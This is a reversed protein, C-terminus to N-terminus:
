SHDLLMLLFLSEIVRSHVSRLRDKCPSSRARRADKGTSAHDFTPCAGTVFQTGLRELSQKGTNQATGTQKLMSDTALTM